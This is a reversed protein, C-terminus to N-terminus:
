KREQILTQNKKRGPVMIAEYKGDDRLTLNSRNMKSLHEAHGVYFYPMLDTREEMCPCFKKPIKAEECSRDHPVEQSFLDYSWDPIGSDHGIIHDLKIPDGNGKTRPKLMGRLTNYLDYGTVLKDQNAFLKDIWSQSGRFKAPVILNNFPHMHEVQTSFDIPSPGGQLGHDSRLVIITNEADPRRLMEGLFNSLYEDYAELGLSQYALDVSYDHAALTNLYAFKPQEPYANWMGRIYEFALEQRSRGNICPKPHTSNDHEVAYLPTQSLTQNKIASALQCFLGNMNIDPNLKFLNNQIVYPSYYFCFEEGFYTVYGLKPAFNYLWPNELDSELCWAELTSRENLAGRKYSKTGPIKHDSCGSLAALQNPISNQGVISTKNFMAACFGSPCRSGRETNNIINHSKLFSTTKPLNRLSSSQSLSDIELFLINPLKEIKGSKQTLHKTWSRSRDEFQRRPTVTINIDFTYKSSNKIKCTKMSLDDEKFFLDFETTNCPRWHFKPNPSNTACLCEEQELNSTIEEKECKPWSPRNKKAIDSYFSHVSPIEPMFTCKKQNTENKPNLITCFKPPIGPTTRCYERDNTLPRLLSKGIMGNGMRQLAADLITEHVDFPTIWANKNKELAMRQDPSVSPPVHLYLIPEAREREGNSFFSPGYHLGHDSSVFVITHTLDIDQLFHVFSEDLYSILTLSDEHSDVFSLMAAWPQARMGGDKLNASTKATTQEYTAIFQQAYNMVHQAAFDKGLCNPRDFDFCFMRYLQEGHTTRPKISQVMNSNEICVDEAKFTAYGAAGLEDWLWKPVNTEADDNEHSDSKKIGDRGGVLPVGTFLAAQNPGSNNGVVTYKPFHIFGLKELLAMTNPLSRKFQSRSIPDILISLVNMRPEPKTVTSGSSPQQFHTQKKLIRTTCSVPHLDTSNTSAIAPSADSGGDNNVGERVRMCAVEAEAADEHGLWLEVRPYDDSPHTDGSSDIGDDRRRGTVASSKSNSSGKSEMVVRDDLMMKVGKPFAHMDDDFEISARHHFSPCAMFVDQDLARADLKSDCKGTENAKAHRCISLNDLTLYSLRSPIALDLGQTAFFLADFRAPEENAHGNDDSGDHQISSALRAGSSLFNAVDQQSKFLHNPRYVEKADLHSSALLQVKYKSDLLTQVATLGLMKIRKGTNSEAEAHDQEYGPLRAYSHVAIVIYTMTAGNMLKSVRSPHFMEDISTEPTSSSSDHRNQPAFYAMLFWSSNQNQDWWQNLNTSTPLLYTDHGNMSSHSTVVEAPGHDVNFIGSTDRSKELVTHTIFSPKVVDSSVILVNSQAISRSLLRTCVEKLVRGQYIPQQLDPELYSARQAPQSHSSSDISKMYMGNGTNIRSRRLVPHHAKEGSTTLRQKEADLPKAEMDSSIHGSLIAILGNEGGHYRFMISLSGILYVFFLIQTLVVFM